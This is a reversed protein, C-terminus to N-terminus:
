FKFWSSIAHHFRCGLVDTKHKQPCSETGRRRDHCTRSNLIFVPLLLIAPVVLMTVILMTVPANVIARVLIVVVPVVIFIVGVALVIGFLVTIIPVVVFQITTLLVFIPIPAVSMRVAFLAALIPRLPSHLGPQENRGGRDTCM